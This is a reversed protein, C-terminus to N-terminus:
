RRLRRFRQVYVPLVLKVKRFDGNLTLAFFDVMIKLVRCSILQVPYYNLRRIAMKLGGYYGIETDSPVAQAEQFQPLFHLFIKHFAGSYDRIKSISTVYSTPVITITNISGFCSYVAYNISGHVVYQSQWKM